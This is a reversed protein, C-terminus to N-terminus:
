LSVKTSMAFSLRRDAILNNIGDAALDITFGGIKVGAGLALKFEEPGGISVGGRVPLYDTINYEAGLSVIHRTTNGPLNNNGKLWNLEILLKQSPQYMIGARFKTPMDTEFSTLTDRTDLGELDNVFRNYTPDTKSLYFNKYLFNNKDYNIFTNYDWTIKGLETVSAGIRIKDGIQMNFGLDISYGKGAPKPFFTYHSRSGDSYDRFFDTLAAKTYFSQQGKISDIHKLGSSPDTKIGYTNIYLDSAYTIVNGFGHVLGASFGISLNKIIGKKFEFNKSAGITYKRIWWAIAESQHIEVNTLNQKGSDLIELYFNLPLYEDRSNSETNLGVKDAITFNIAVSKPIIFNISFWKLEFDYNVDTRKNPLVNQRFNLVSTIDTFTNIFTERNISLYSLYKNYFNINSDCGYAGGLSFVSVDWYPKKLKNGAIKIKVTDRNSYKNYYYNAPNIGYANIGFSSLMASNSMGVGRANSRDDAFTQIKFFGSLLIFILLTYKM